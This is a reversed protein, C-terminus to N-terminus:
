LTISQKYLLPIPKLSTSKKIIAYKHKDKHQVQGLARQIFSLPYGRRQLRLTFLKIMVRFDSQSISITPYRIAEGKIFGKKQAPTHYSHFPLYAYTNLKKQYVNTHLKGNKITVVM